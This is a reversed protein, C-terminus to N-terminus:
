YHSHQCCAARSYGNGHSGPQRPSELEAKPWLTAGVSLHTRCCTRSSVRTWVRAQQDVSSCANYVSSVLRVSTHSLQSPLHSHTHTHRARRAKNLTARFGPFIPSSTTTLFVCHLDVCPASLCRSDCLSVSLHLSLSPLRTAFHLVASRWLRALEQKAETLAFPCARYPDKSCWSLSDSVHIYSYLNGSLSTHLVLPLTLSSIPRPSVSLYFCWKFIVNSM